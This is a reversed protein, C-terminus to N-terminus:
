RRILQIMKLPGSSGGSPFPFNSHLEHPPTPETHAFNGIGTSLFESPRFVALDPEELDTALIGFTAIPLKTIRPHWFVYSVVDM